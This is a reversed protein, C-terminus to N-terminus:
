SAGGWELTCCKVGGGGKLLESVDVGIPQFGRERLAAALQTAQAALVVHHGDSIANLGFAEADAETALIADPYLRRLTRRSDQSFAPEYYMVEEDSLVALATDLHYFRPDVLELGLVERGFFGQAEAHARRDTRFGSGALIRDGVVLFDGQGENVHAAIRVEHCRERLWAAYLGGEAARQSYRFRASLAKGDVVTAGNAAFVMDPLGPAPAIEEVVHGLQAFAARLRDWQALARGTDTPHEPRMWPNISYTVDFYTPRCMLYRRATPATPM